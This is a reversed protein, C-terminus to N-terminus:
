QTHPLAVELRGSTEGDAALFRWNHMWRRMCAAPASPVDDPSVLEADFPQGFKDIRLKFVVSSPLVVGGKSCESAFRAGLRNLSGPAV